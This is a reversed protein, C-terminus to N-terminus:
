YTESRKKPLIKPLQHRTKGIGLGQEGPHIHLTLEAVRPKGGRVKPELFLQVELFGVLAGTEMRRVTWCPADPRRPLEERIAEADPPPRHVYTQDSHTLLAFIEDADGVATPSISGTSRGDCSALLL